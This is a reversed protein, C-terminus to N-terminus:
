VSDDGVDESLARITLDIYTKLLALGEKTVDGRITLEAKTGKSLAFSQTWLHPQQAELMASSLRSMIPSVPELVANASPMIAEGLDSKGTYRKPTDEVLRINERYVSIVDEAAKPLFGNKILYHKLNSESPLTEGFDTRIQQFMPPKFLMRSIAERREPGDELEFYSVADDGIKLAEGTGELIGYQRLAGIMSLSRGNIGSYGLSQAVVERAAPHTHEKNYVQRGKEAADVFTVQPCNPSRQHAMKTVKKRLEMGLIFIFRTFEFWLM